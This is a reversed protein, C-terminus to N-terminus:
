ETEETTTQQPKEKPEFLSVMVSDRGEERKVAAFNFTPDILIFKSGSDDEMLSGITRYSNKTEGDKQYTGHKVKLEKTRKFSM